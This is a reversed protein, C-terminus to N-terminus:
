SIVAFSITSQFFFFILVIKFPPTSLTLPTDSFPSYNNEKDPFYPNGCQNGLLEGCDDCIYEKIIHEIYKM